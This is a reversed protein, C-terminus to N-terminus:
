KRCSVLQNAVASEGALSIAQDVHLTTQNLPFLPHKEHSSSVSVPVTTNGKEQFPLSVRDLQGHATSSSLHLLVIQLKFLLWPATLLHLRTSKLQFHFRSIQPYTVHYSYAQVDNVYVVLMTVFSTSILCVHGKLNPSMRLHCFKIKPWTNRDYIAGAFSDNKNMLKPHAQFSM